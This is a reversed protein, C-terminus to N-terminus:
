PSKNSLCTHATALSTLSLDSCGRNSWHCFQAACQRSQSQPLEDSHIPESQSKIVVCTAVTLTSTLWLTKGNADTKVAESDHLYSITEFADNENKKLTPIGGSAEPRASPPLSRVEDIAPLDNSQWAM